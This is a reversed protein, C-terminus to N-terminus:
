MITMSLPLITSYSNGCVNNCFLFENKDLITADNPSSDSFANFDAAACNAIAYFIFISKIGSIIHSIYTRLLSIHVHLATFYKYFCKLIFYLLLSFNNNKGNQLFCRKLKVERSYPSSYTHILIIVPWYLYNVFIFNDSRKM